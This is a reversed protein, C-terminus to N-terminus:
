GEQIRCVHSCATREEINVEYREEAEQDVCFYKKDKKFHRVKEIVTYSFVRM